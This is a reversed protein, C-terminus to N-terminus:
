VLLRVACFQPLIIGFRLAGDSRHPRGGGLHADTGVVVRHIRFSYCNVMNVGGLLQDGCVFLPVFDHLLIQLFELFVFLPNHLLLDFLVFIDLKFLPLLPGGSDFLVLLCDFCIALKELSDPVGSGVLEVDVM